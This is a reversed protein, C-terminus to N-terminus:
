FRVQGPTIGLKAAYDAAFAQMGALSRTPPTSAVLSSAGDEFIGNMGKAVAYGDAEKVIQPGLVRNCERMAIFEAGCGAKKSSSATCQM